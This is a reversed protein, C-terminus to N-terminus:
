KYITLYFGLWIFFFLVYSSLVIYTAINRKKGAAVHMGNVLLIWYLLEFINLAKLPYMWRDPVQSYDTMSMLSLPYYARIQNLTIDEPMGLFHIIKILEPILFVTNAVMVVKWCETYTVRYGFMFSGVWIIFSTVTFVYGYYLPITLYQLANLTRILGMKGEMALVEFAVIEAEILNKKLFLVVFTALCIFIFYVPGSTNLLRRLTSEM